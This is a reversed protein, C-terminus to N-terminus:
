TNFLAGKRSSQHRKSAVTANDSCWAAITGDVATVWIRSTHTGVRVTESVATSPLASEAVARYWVETCLPPLPDEGDLPEATNHQIITQWTRGQDTSTEVRLLVTPQGGAGARAQLTVM